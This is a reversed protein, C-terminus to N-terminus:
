PVPAVGIARYQRYTMDHQDCHHITWNEFRFDRCSYPKQEHVDRVWIPILGSAVLTQAGDSFRLDFGFESGLAYSGFPYDADGIFMFTNEFEPGFSRSFQDSFYLARGGQAFYTFWTGLDQAPEINRSTCVILQGVYMLFPAADGPVEQTRFLLSCDQRFPGSEFTSRQDIGPTFRDDHLVVGDVRDTFTVDIPGSLSRSSQGNIDIFFQDQGKWEFFNRYESGEGTLSNRSWGEGFATGHRNVAAFLNADWSFQNSSPVPAPDVITITASRVNNTPDYDGPDVADASVSVEHVGNAAFRQLFQCGVLSGADVWMAQVRDAVVGNIRLVCNMRAGMDGRMEQYLAGIVTLGGRVSQPEMSMEVVSIDPRYKVRETVTVVGTGFGENSAINGQVQVPDGHARGPLTFRATSSNVAPHNSVQALAGSADFQKIQVHTLTGSPPEGIVGATVDLTTLGDSGLLAEAALVANGSRASAAKRGADSYKVHNPFLTPRGGAVSRARSASHVLLPTTPVADGCGIIAACCLLVFSRHLSPM